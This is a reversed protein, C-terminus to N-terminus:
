VQGGREKAAAVARAVAPLLEAGLQDNCAEKRLYALTEENVPFALLVKDRFEDAAGAVHFDDPAEREIFAYAEEITYTMAPHWFREYILM